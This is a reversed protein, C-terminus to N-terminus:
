EDQLDEWTPGSIPLGGLELRAIQADGAFLGELVPVLEASRELSLELGGLQAMEKVLEPTLAIQM